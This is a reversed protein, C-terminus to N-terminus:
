KSLGLAKLFTSIVGEVKKQEDREAKAAAKAIKSAAQLALKKDADTMWDAYGDGDKDNETPPYKSERLPVNVPEVDNNVPESYAQGTQPSVYVPNEKLFDSVVDIQKKETNEGSM